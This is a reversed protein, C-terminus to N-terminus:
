GAIPDMIVELTEGSKINYDRLCQETKGQTPHLIIYNDNEDKKGFFYEVVAGDKDVNPLEFIPNGNVDKCEERLRQMLVKLTDNPNSVQFRITKNKYSLRLYFNEKGM